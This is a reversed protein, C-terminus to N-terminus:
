KRDYRLLTRSSESAVYIATMDGTLCVAEAQILKHRSLVVPERELAAAWTEGVARPFWLLDGYTLVVAGSGDSAFDMACPRARQQGLHGKLLRETASPKPLHPVRGVRHATVDADKLKAPLEVRYLRPIDERKTLLYVAREKVDIAVAECDRSGDDYAVRLTAAPKTVTEHRPSLSHAEPEEVFHLLVRRRKADNDGTDGILLWPKGDLEFAAADEWDDNRVGNIRLKGRLTGNETVAYLIPEGGSDDHTWLLDRNRRSAALGSAENKSPAELKGADVPGIFPAVSVAVPIPAFALWLTGIAVTCHLRRFINFCHV